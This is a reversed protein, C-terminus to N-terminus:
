PGQAIPRIREAYHGLQDVHREFLQGPRRYCDDRRRYGVLWWGLAEAGSPGRDGNDGSWIRYATGQQKQNNVCQIRQAKQKARALAPLLMSALIAIIAIVVLLEILTFAALKKSWNNKM